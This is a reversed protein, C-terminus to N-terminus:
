EYRLADVPDLKAARMAPVFGSLIGVVILVVVSVLLVEWSVQMHIDVRGSTDEYAPGLFPLTGITAGMGVSILVGIAGGALTIALAETLFQARIHRRRAGLARRLGIERIRENVTVLMINMVGVGGIGLTLLGVFLLLFELGYSIGMIIPRFEAMSDMVVARKDTPSFHQREALVALVQARTQADFEPSVPEVVLVSASKTDWLDGATSYPIWASQDDNTFYSSQQFKRDMVGVVTFPAGQIHVTEGVAPLGAFLKKKLLAGIFVVRRRNVIDDADLWRGELPVENRMEGYQECVGRVATSTSREEHTLGVFKVTEPCVQKALTATARLTDVDSQELKVKQGAREGGAQEGTTGPWCIIVDHGFSDFTYMLVRRFGTGYALLMTVAVIGWVIGTMTLCSRIPQRRLSSWAQSLIEEFM